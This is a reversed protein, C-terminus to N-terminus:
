WKLNDAIAHATNMSDYKTADSSVGFSIGAYGVSFSVSSIDNTDKRHAYDAYANLTTISNSTLKNVDFYMSIIMNTVKKKLTNSYLKFSVAEGTSSVNRKYPSTKNATTGDDYKVANSFGQSTSDVSVTNDIGIGIIDYGRVKPMKKWTLTAKYRYKSGIKVIESTLLKYETSVTGCVGYPIIDSENEYEAETVESTVSNFPMTDNGNIFYNTTKMYKYSTAVVKGVLDKNNFYTNEDMIDIEESSFGLNKLNTVDEQSMKINNSNVFFFNDISKAYITQSLSIGFFTIMILMRIVKKM